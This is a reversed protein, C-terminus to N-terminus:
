TLKLSLAHIHETKYCIFCTCLKACSHLGWIFPVPAMCLGSISSLIFPNSSILVWWDTFFLFGHMLIKEQEVLGQRACWFHLQIELVVQWQLFALSNIIILVISHISYINSVLKLTAVMNIAPHVLSFPPPADPHITMVFCWYEWWSQASDEISHISYLHYIQCRAGGCM